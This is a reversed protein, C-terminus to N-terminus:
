ILKRRLIKMADEDKIHANFIISKIDDISCDKPSGDPSGSLTLETGEKKSTSLSQIKKVADNINLWVLQETDIGVDIYTFWDGFQKKVDGEKVM